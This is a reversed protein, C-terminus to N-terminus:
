SLDTIISEDPGPTIEGILAAHAIGRAKLTQVLNEAEDPHVAAVLGGSTQPDFLIDRTTRGSQMSEFKVMGRASIGQNNYAATPILGMDAFEAAKELLRFLPRVAWLRIGTGTRHIM